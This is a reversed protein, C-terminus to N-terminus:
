VQVGAFTVMTEVDISVVETVNVAPFAPLMSGNVAGAESESTSTLAIRSLLRLKACLRESTRLYRKHRMRTLWYVWASWGSTKSATRPFQAVM